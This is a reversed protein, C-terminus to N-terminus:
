GETGVIVVDFSTVCNAPAGTGTAVIVVVGASGGGTEVGVGAAFTLSYAFSDSAGDSETVTANGPATGTGCVINAYTGSASISCNGDAPVNTPEDSSVGVCHDSAFSYSGGGGQFAVPTLTTTHGQSVGADTDGDSAMATLPSIALAGAACLTGLMTALKMGTKM